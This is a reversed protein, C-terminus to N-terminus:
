PNLDWVRLDGEIGYKRAWEKLHSMIEEQVEPTETAINARLTFYATGGDTGGSNHTIGVMHVFSGNSFVSRSTTERYKGVISSIKATLGEKDPTHLALHFMRATPWHIRLAHPQLDQPLFDKSEILYVVAYLDQSEGKALIEMEYEDQSPLALNFSISAIYLKHEELRGAVEAIIGSRDKGHVRVVLSKTAPDFYRVEVVDTAIPTQM